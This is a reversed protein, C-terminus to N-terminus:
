SHEGHNLAKPHNSKVFIKTQWVGSADCSITLARVIMRAHSDWKALGGLQHM